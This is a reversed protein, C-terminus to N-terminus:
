LICCTYYRQNHWINKNKIQAMEFFDPNTSTYSVDSACFLVTTNNSQNSDKKKADSMKGVKGSIWIFADFKCFIHKALIKFLQFHFHSGPSPDEQCWLFDPYLFISSSDFNFFSVTHVQECYVPAAGLLNCFGALRAFKFIVM